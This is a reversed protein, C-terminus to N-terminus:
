TGGFIQLPITVVALVFGLGIIFIVAANSVIGNRHEGVYRKDNLLFLFPIVTLPLSAATLAMSFITLKLPDLGLMIPIAALFLSVTYVASFGPDDRPKLNEGWNWGFGQAVLYAQQLGVELAAGFCAIALSAVFLVFGWFGFIPILMLPLQHYDDVQDIGHTALVLAAVMLVGISITGGFAMGLGAIARNTGLYSRDWQDEIAGSSYFMFLYPSISAGLISVAMFWYSAADHTPLTPVAGSAVATWDPKLMVAAVVFCLTVLGLISVGKEILGFTGKWLLLWAMLAVPLAWWQFGIGTALELAIAVGGIEASLVMFNVLLAALLPWLSVNFGFRERIGDSITHHSVAAFRGAMEVLFIICITGLVVAWILQFGFTAGAQAATAMSGVELFGGVSTVIGLSIELLKKM